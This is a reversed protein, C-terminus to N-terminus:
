IKSFIIISYNEVDKKDIKYDKLYSYTSISKCKMAEKGLIGSKFQRYLAGTFKKLTPIILLNICESWAIDEQNNLFKRELNNDKTIFDLIMSVLCSRPSAKKNKKNKDNKDINECNTIVYNLAFYRDREAYNSIIKILKVLEYNKSIYKQDNEIDPFIKYNEKSIYEYNKVIDKRLKDLDHKYNKIEKYKPYSKNDKYSKFCIMCKMLIEYGRSLLLLPLLYYYERDDFKIKQMHDIGLQILNVSEEVMGKLYSEKLINEQEKNSIINEHNNVM